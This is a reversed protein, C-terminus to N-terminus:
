SLTLHGTRPVWKREWSDRQKSKAIMRTFSNITAYQGLFHELVSALLYFGTGPYKEDDFTISVDLGRCFGRTKADQIPAVSRESNISTIGEIMQATTQSGTYDYLRLIERLAAAGDSGGTISLHNLSLHSILRWRNAAERLRLPKTPEVPTTIRRVPSQGVLQFAWPDAGSKQVNAPIDRNTCTTTILAVEAPPVTPNFDLDVFSMYVDTGHDDDRISPVRHHCWYAREGAAESDHQFSFFPKYQIVEKTEPHISEVEDISYVEMASQRRLDPYLPYQMRTRTLRIPEASQKFLNVIPTCGLRFTDGKIRTELQNAPKNLFLVIEFQDTAKLHPLIELQTIDCFLFKQPFTFFETLLRYGPLSRPGYPLMGEEPGYGVQQLCSAPLFAYSDKPNVDPIRIMVSVAHNFILEYLQNTTPNDGSLFFRLKKIDLKALPHASRSKIEIRIASEADRLRRPDVVDSIERGFPASEYRARVIELPWLEADATTRFRCPLGNIERSFIETGRKIVPGTTLNGQAPDLELQAIAMSPIPALYHPYLINLLADVLEPFEDKLKVQVRATLFAFAEIMREVHPDQSVGTDESLVLRGAIGPREAAFEKAYQRIFALESEYERELRTAM